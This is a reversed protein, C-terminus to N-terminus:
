RARREHRASEVEEGIEAARDRHQDPEQGGPAPIRLRVGGRREEDGDEDERSRAPQHPLVDVDEHVSRRRRAASIARRAM